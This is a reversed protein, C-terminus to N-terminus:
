KGQQIKEISAWILKEVDSFRDEITSGLVVVVIPHVLGADFVVALNGGAIDTFGTKSGIVNPLETIKKNTNKIYHVFGDLSVVSRDVFTTAELLSPHKKIIYSFLKSVDKASGYAGSIASSIDLGSENILFTQNMEIKNIKETIKKVFFNNKSNEYVKTNGLSSVASALASAGDNSSTILTLDILSKVDWREGLLLGSDGEIGISSSKIIVVDNYSLEEIAILATMVKVISALPLQAGENSSYLVKENVIDWVFSAKAKLRIESYPDKNEKEVIEPTNKEDGFFLSFIFIIFFAGVFGTIIRKYLTPLQKFKDM